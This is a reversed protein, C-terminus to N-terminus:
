FEAGGRGHGVRILFFFLKTEPREWRTSNCMGSGYRMESVDRASLFPTGVTRTILGGIRSACYAVM